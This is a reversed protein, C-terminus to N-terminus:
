QSTFHADREEEMLSWHLAKRQEEGDQEEGGSVHGSLRRSRGRGHVPRLKLRLDEIAVARQHPDVRCRSVFREGDVIQLLHELGLANRRLHERQVRGAGVQHGSSIRAWV